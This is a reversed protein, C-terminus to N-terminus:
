KRKDNKMKRGKKPVTQKSEYNLGKYKRKKLNNNNNNSNNSFKNLIDNMSKEYDKNKQNEELWEDVESENDEYCTIPINEKSNNNNDRIKIEENEKISEKIIDDISKSNVNNSRDVGPCKYEIHLDYERKPVMQNCLCCEETKSGCIYEHDHKAHKDLLLGCYICPLLKKSCVGMHDNLKIREILKRCQACNVKGHAEDIHEQYEDILILENCKSCKKINKACFRSHLTFQLSSFTQGCNLCKNTSM